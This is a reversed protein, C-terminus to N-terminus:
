AHEAPTKMLGGIQTRLQRIRLLKVCYRKFEPDDPNTNADLKRQLFAALKDEARALEHCIASYATNEEAPASPMAHPTRGGEAKRLFEVGFCYGDRNRVIASVRLKRPTQFEIEMPDGPKLPLGAYFSAGGRSIETALGPVATQSLEDGLAILVPLEVQHRQWRRTNLPAPNSNAKPM